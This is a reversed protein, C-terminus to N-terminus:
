SRPSRASSSSSGSSRSGARPGGVGSASALTVVLLGLQVVYLPWAFTKLWHYDFATAVPLRRARPRGVPPRPHVRLRGALVDGGGAATNSYAMALGFCALLAAYMAIQLDFARWVRASRRPADLQRSPTNRPSALGM